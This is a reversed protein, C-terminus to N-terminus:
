SGLARCRAEARPDDSVESVDFPDHRAESADRRRGSGALARLACPDGGPEPQAITFTLDAISIGRIINKSVKGEYTLTEGDAFPMSKPDFKAGDQAMAGLSFVASAALLLVIRNVLDKM